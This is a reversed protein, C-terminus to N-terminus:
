NLGENYDYDGVPRVFTYKAPKVVITDALLEFADHPAPISAIATLPSLGVFLASGTVLGVFSLPRVIVADLMVDYGDAERDQEAFSASSSLMAGALFIVKLFKM